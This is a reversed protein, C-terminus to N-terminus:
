SEGASPMSKLPKINRTVGHKTTTHSGPGYGWQIQITEFLGISPGEMNSNTGKGPKSVLGRRGWHPKKLQQSTLTTPILTNCREPQTTSYCPPLTTPLTQLQTM